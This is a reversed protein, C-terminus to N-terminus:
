REIQRGYHGTQGARFLLYLDTLPEDYVCPGRNPVSKLMRFVSQTRNEENEPDVARLFKKMCEYKVKLRKVVQEKSLFEHPPPNTWYAEM